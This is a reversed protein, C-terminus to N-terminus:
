IIATSHIPWTGWGCLLCNPESFSGSSPLEHWSSGSDPIRKPLVLYFKWILRHSGTSHFLSRESRYTRLVACNEIQGLMWPPYLHSVKARIIIWLMAWLASIDSLPSLWPRYFLWALPLHAFLVTHGGPGWHLGSQVKLLRVSAMAGSWQQSCFKCSFTQHISQGSWLQFYPWYSPGIMLLFLMFFFISTALKKNKGKRGLHNWKSTHMPIASTMSRTHIILAISYTGFWSPLEPRTEMRELGSFLNMLYNVKM